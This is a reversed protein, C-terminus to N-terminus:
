ENDERKLKKFQNYQRAARFGGYALFIFGFWTRNPKPFRDILFDSCLFVFGCGLFLAAMLVGTWLFVRQM